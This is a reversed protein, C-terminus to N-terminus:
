KTHNYIDQIEVQTMAKNYILLQDINGDLPPATYPEKLIINGVTFKDLSSLESFWKGSNTGSNVVITEELGDIYLKWIVGDAVLAIHYYTGAELETTGSIWDAAGPLRYYVGITNDAPDIRILSVYNEISESDSIGALYQVNEFSNVKVWAMFTGVENGKFSPDNKEIYDNEVAKFLFSENTKNKRDKSLQAGVNTGDNDNNSLDSANGSFEYYCVLGDRPIEYGSDDKCSILQFLVGILVLLVSRKLIKM